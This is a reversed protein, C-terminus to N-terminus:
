STKKARIRSLTEPKIGLYSAIYQLPVHQLLDSHHNFLQQYREEATSRIFSIVREEKAVFHQELILRGMREWRPYRDYLRQLDEYGISWLEAETITQVLEFSPKRSIFSSFAGVFEGPRALHVTKEEIDERVAVRVYGGHVYHLHHCIEGEELIYTGKPVVKQKLLPIVENFEQDSVHSIKKLRELLPQFM